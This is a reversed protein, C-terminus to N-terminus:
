SGACAVDAAGEVSLVIKGQSNRTELLHHAKAARELPLVAGINLKLWGQRIGVIVANARQMLEEPTRAWRGSGSLSASRAMLHRPTISEAPGSTAGCVVIHGRVAIADLDGKFTSQGVSDLILDAGHGDTIRMVESAFDEKTYNITHAAGAERATCAKEDSSVTAIVEAGLHRAWQVLLGGVGGAAAHVLVIDGAKPKRFENILYHATMGQLPFAAGQEFTFDDPLPILHSADVVIAEAYAGPQGSFAVRDSVKVNWVDEGIAEVVGCGEVGPVFPVERPYSGRRQAVDMFNVGAAMVRLIARGRGPKQVLPVEKLQLVDAGGHKEVWIAKM